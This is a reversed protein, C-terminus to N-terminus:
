KKASKPAPPLFNELVWVEEQRDGMEYAFQRGDPHISLVGSVSDPLALRRVARGSLPITIAERKESGDSFVSAVLHTGDPTWSLNALRRGAERHVERPSGGDVPAVVVTMSRQGEGFVRTAVFKADPSLSFGAPAQLPLVQRESGTVTDLEVVHLATTGSRRAFFVRRGDPAPQPSWLSGDAPALMLTTVAGTELDLRFLGQRNDLNAGQMVLGRGDPFWRPWNFRLLPLPFEREEGTAMTRVVLVQNYGIRDRRNIFALRSGDPSWTPHNSFGVYPDVSRISGVTGTAVDVSAVQLETNRATAGVLLAGSSTGGLSTTGVDAKLMLPKGVARMGGLRQMWLSHGDGRSRAFLLHADPSWGMPVSLGSDQVVVLEKGTAIEIAVIDSDRAAGVRRRDFVLFRSDPSFRMGNAGTDQALAMRQGTRADFVVIDVRRSDANLLGAIWRGDPSWDYPAVWPMPKETLTRHELTPRQLDFVRLEYGQSPGAYWGYAISRGDPSFVSREAYSPGDSKNTVRRSTGNVLDRVALDGSRWDTFSLLRGDPSASGTLDVEPGEWLRRMATAGPAVPSGPGVASGLAARAASAASAQDGYERVVREYIAKAQADGLRKYAGAMRVLADAVVARDNAFRKVIQDYQAIAAKPNGDITEAKRAAELMVQASQAQGAVLPTGLTAVALGLALYWSQKM